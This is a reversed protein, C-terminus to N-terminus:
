EAGIGLCASHQRCECWACEMVDENARESCITCVDVNDKIKKTPPTYPGTSKALLIKPMIIPNFCLAFHQCLVHLKQSTSM